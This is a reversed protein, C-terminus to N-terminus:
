PLCYWRGALLVWRCYDAKAGHTPAIANAEHAASVAGYSALAPLGLVAIALAIKLKRLM